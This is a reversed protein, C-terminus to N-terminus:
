ILNIKGKMLAWHGPFSCFYLYTKNKDFKISRVVLETSEGGGIMESKYIINESKPLYGSESGISFDIKQAIEYLQSEEIIVLNHGMAGVPLKGAHKFLITTEACRTDITIESLDYKMMDTGSIKIECNEAYVINSMLLSFLLFIYIKM